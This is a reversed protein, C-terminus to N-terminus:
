FRIKFRLGLAKQKRMIPGQVGFVFPKENITLHRTYVVGSKLHLRLSSSFWRRDEEPQEDMSLLIEARLDTGVVDKATPEGAHAVGNPQILLAGASVAWVALGQITRRTM